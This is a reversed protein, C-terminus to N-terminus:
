KALTIYTGLNMSNYVIFVAVLRCAKGIVLWRYCCCINCFRSKDLARDTKSSVIIFLEVVNEFDHCSVKSYSRCVFNNFILFTQLSICRGDVFAELFKVKIM